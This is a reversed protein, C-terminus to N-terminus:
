RCDNVSSGRTSIVSLVISLDSVNYFVSLSIVLHAMFGPSAGAAHSRIQPDRETM